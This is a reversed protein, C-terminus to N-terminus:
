DDHPVEYILYPEGPNLVILGEPLDGALEAELPGFFVYDVEALLAQREDVSLTGEFFRQAREQKAESDITEPGHGVYAILDTRAPLINGTEKRSLVVSDRPALNNLRDMLELEAAPNFLPREGAMASFLGGLWLLLATPLTLALVLNRALKRHSKFALRLGAVALISVPVIIGEALRRQVNIPLYVVLPMM